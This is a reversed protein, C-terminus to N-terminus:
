DRGDAGICHKGHEPHLARGPEMTLRNRGNHFEYRYGRRFTGYFSRQLGDAISKIDEKRNDILHLFSLAGRM